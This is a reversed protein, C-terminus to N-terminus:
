KRETSRLPDSLPMAISIIENLPIRFTSDLSIGKFTNAHRTEILTGDSLSYYLKKAPKGDMEFKINLDEENSDVSLRLWSYTFDSLADVALSLEISTAATRQLRATPILKIRNKEGPISHLFGDTVTIRGNELLIPLSGNVRSGEGSDVGIGLQELLEPLLIHNAHLTIHTKKDNRSIRTSEGRIKGGCWNLVLNNLYWVSPDQIRFIAIGSDVAIRGLKFNKFGLFQAHSRLSPLAPLNVTLHIDTASCNKEPWKVIGETLQGQIAGDHKGSRITYHADATVKGSFTMGETEPLISSINTLDLTQEAIALTNSMVFGQPTETSIVSEVHGTIGLTNVRTALHYHQPDQQSLNAEFSAFDSDRFATNANLSADFRVMGEHDLSRTGSLAANRFAIAQKPLIADPVTLTANGTIPAGPTKLEASGSLGNPLLLRTEAGANKLTLTNLSFTAHLPPFFATPARADGTAKFRAGTLTVTMNGVNIAGSWGKTSDALEAQFRMPDSHINVSFPTNDALRLRLRGDLTKTERLWVVNSAELKLPLNNLDGQIGSFSGEIQRADGSLDFHPACVLNGTTTAADIELDASLTFASVSPGNLQIKARADITTAARKITAPLKKRITYPLADVSLNGNVTASLTETVTDVLLTAFIQASSLSASGSLTINEWKRGDMGDAQLQIPIAYHESQTELLVYGDVHITTITIPLERLAKLTFTGAPAASDNPKSFLAIGPITVTGNTVTAQISLGNINVADIKGRLLRLPRYELTCFDIKIPSTKLPTDAAFAVSFTSRALGVHHLKFTGNGSTM